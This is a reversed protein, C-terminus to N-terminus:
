SRLRCVKPYPVGAEEFLRLSFLFMQSASEAQTFMEAGAILNCQWAMAAVCSCKGLLCKKKAQENQARMHTLM